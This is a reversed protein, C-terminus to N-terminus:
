NSSLQGFSCTGATDQQPSVEAFTFGLALSGRVLRVFFDPINSYGPHSLRLIQKSPM